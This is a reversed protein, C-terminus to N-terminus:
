AAMLRLPDQCSLAALVREIPPFRSTKAACLTVTPLVESDRRAQMAQLAVIRRIRATEAYTGTM